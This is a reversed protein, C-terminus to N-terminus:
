FDYLSKLLYTCTLLKAFNVVTFSVQSQLCWDLFLFRQWSICIEFEWFPNIPFGRTRWFLFLISYLEKKWLFFTSNLKWIKWSWGASLSTWIAFHSSFNPVSKFTSWLLIFLHAWGGRGQGGKTQFQKAFWSAHLWAICILETCRYVSVVM